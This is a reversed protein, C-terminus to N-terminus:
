VRVEVQDNPPPPIPSIKFVASGSTSPRPLEAPAVFPVTVVNSIGTASVIRRALLTDRDSDWVEISLPGHSTLTVDADYHGAPERAYDGYIVYGQRGDAAMGWAGLPGSTIPHGANTQMAWAPLATCELPRRGHNTAAPEM